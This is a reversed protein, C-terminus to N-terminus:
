SRINGYLASSYRDILYSTKRLIQYTSCIQVPYLFTRHNHFDLDFDCRRRIRGRKDGVGLLPRELHDLDIFSVNGMKLDSESSLRRPGLRGRDLLASTSPTGLVPRLVGSLWLRIILYSSAQVRGVEADRVWDM